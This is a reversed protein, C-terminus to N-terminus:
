RGGVEDGFGRLPTGSQRELLAQEVQFLGKYCNDARVNM